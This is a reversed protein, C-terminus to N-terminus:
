MGGSNQNVQGLNQAGPMGGMQPQTQQQPQGIGMLKKAEDATRLFDQYDDVESAQWLKKWLVDVKTLATLPPNKIAMMLASQLKQLVELRDAFQTVGVAKFNYAMDGKERLKKIDLRSVKKVGPIVAGSVQDIKPDDVIKLGLLRDVKSQDFLKENVVIKFIKKILPILYDREVFRGVDLFRQDIAQLKREYEGLTNTDSGSGSLAPASQVQRGIGSADQDVQDILTLGRLIDSIASMPQRQIKVANVDKMKWIALPKYKITTSDKVKTEDIIIIDMSSIKLSDFGLNITSNMLEQLGRTNEIYGKAYADYKRPKIRCWQFPTFGFPNLENSLVYKGNLMVIRRKEYENKENPIEVWFEDVDVTKYKEPITLDQTGDISRVMMTPEKNGEQFNISGSPNSKSAEKAADELFQKVVEKDYKGDRKAKEIVYFLDRRFLDIVYRADDINQGCESDFVVNYASRWMLDIGTGDAKMSLKIFGTGIDIAEQLTFDNQQEFGSAGLLTEILNTVEQSSEKDSEEIGLIDFCRRKGFIMKMLYSKAIETKKAQLPIYIKTQWEEKGDWSAPACCRIQRECEEWDPKFKDRYNIGAQRCEYLFKKLDEDKM